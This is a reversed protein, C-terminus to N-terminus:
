AARTLSRFSRFLGPKKPLPRCPNIRYGLLGERRFMCRSCFFLFPPSGCGFLISRSSRYPMSHLFNVSRRRCSPNAAPHGRGSGSPSVLRIARNANHSKTVCSAVAAELSPSTQDTPQGTWPSSMPPPQDLAIYRRLGLIGTTRHERPGGPTKVSTKVHRAQDLVAPAEVM